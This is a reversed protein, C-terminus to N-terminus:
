GLYPAQPQFAPRTLYRRRAQHRQRTPPSCQRSDARRARRQGARRSPLLTPRGPLVNVVARKSFKPTRNGEAAPRLSVQGVRHSPSCSRQRWNPGISEYKNVQDATVVSLGPLAAMMANIKPHATQSSASGLSYTFRMTYWAIVPSGVALTGSHVKLIVAVSAIIRMEASLRIDGVAPVCEATTNVVILIPEKTNTATKPM